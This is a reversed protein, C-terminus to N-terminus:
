KGWRRFLHYDLSSAIEMLDYRLQYNYRGYRALMHLIGRSTIQYEPYNKGRSNEWSSLVFLRSTEIGDESLREIEERIDRTVNRHEKGTIESLERSTITVRGLDMINKVINIVDTNKTYM